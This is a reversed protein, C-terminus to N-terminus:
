ITKVGVWASGNVIIDRDPYEDYLPTREIGTLPRFEMVTSHM